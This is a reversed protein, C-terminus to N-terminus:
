INKGKQRNCTECLLQINRATNSGGEVVPIIHDYELRENNGCKICRGEDRQWVFLRVDEPIRERQISPVREANQFASVERSIKTLAKEQRLVLHKIRLHLEEMEGPPHQSKVEVVTNRFLWRSYGPWTTLVPVEMQEKEREPGIGLSHKLVKPPYSNLLNQYAFGGSEDRVARGLIKIKWEGM